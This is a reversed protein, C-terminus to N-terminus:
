YVSIDQASICFFIQKTKQFIVEADLWEGEYICDPFNSHTSSFKFKAYRKKNTPDRDENMKKQIHSENSHTLGGDKINIHNDITHATEEHNQPSPQPISRKQAEMTSGSQSSQQQEQRSTTDNQSVSSIQPTTISLKTSKTSKALQKFLFEIKKNKNPSVLTNITTQIINLLYQKNVNDLAVIPCKIEPTKLYITNEEKVLSSPSSALPFSKSTSRKDVIWITHLDYVKLVANANLLANDIPLRCLVLADNFLLLAFSDM